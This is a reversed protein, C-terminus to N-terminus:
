LYYLYGPLVYIQIPTSIAGLFSIVLSIRIDTLIFGANFLLLIGGCIMRNKLKMNMYAM